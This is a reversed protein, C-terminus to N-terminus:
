RSRGFAIGLKRMRNRLTSPNVDLLAAAGDAGQVKGGTMRLAARIHNSIAENLTALPEIRDARQPAAPASAPFFEGFQLPEDPRSTLHRILAREVANELERVNGPWEYAKLREIVGPALVPHHGLNMERTKREVFFNVLAPIDTKRLRLPPIVIPFVNIRFWLDERFEGTRVMAELDRHSAAVIRNDVKIPRTGGVREIEGSQLVRLLRVQASPPLEGIEDLFLTGQNAREFRGRKQTLAGTFAGKEHGFLESDLLSDPIAGCNVKVLPGERRGSSYHIANAIVEKGVGTEGQLLIPTGLPAVQHVQEMVERLGYKEGVIEDGSAQYLQRRLYRNDDALLEKLRRIERHQLTNAMAIAFPDHLLQILRVHEASYRGKGQAFFLVIGLRRKDIELVLGLNSVSTLDQAAWFIQAVPNDEPSDAIQVRNRNERIHSRAEPSLPIQSDLDKLPIHSVMGLVEIHDLEDGATNMMLGDIPIFGQLYEMCRKLMTHIDLSGCIRRAAQHFFEMDSM